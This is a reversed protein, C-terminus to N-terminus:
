GARESESVRSCSMRELSGGVGGCCAPDFGFEGLLPLTRSKVSFNSAATGEAGSFGLPIVGVASWLSVSLVAVGGCDGKFSVSNMLTAPSAIVARAAMSAISVVTSGSRVCDSIDVTGGSGGSFIANVGSSSPM